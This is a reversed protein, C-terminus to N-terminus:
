LWFDTTTEEPCDQADKKRVARTLEVGIKKKRAQMLFDPSEWPVFSADGYRPDDAFRSSILFDLLILGEDLKKILRRIRNQEKKAAARIKKAALKKRFFKEGVM